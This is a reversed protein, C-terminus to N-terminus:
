QLDGESSKCYNGSTGLVELYNRHTTRVWLFSNIAVQYRQARGLLQPPWVFDNWVYSKGILFAHEFEAFGCNWTARRSRKLVLLELYIHSNIVWLSNNTTMWLGRGRGLHRLPRVFSTQVIRNRILFAHEFGALSFNWVAKRSQEPECLMHLTWSFLFYCILFNTNGIQKSCTGLM